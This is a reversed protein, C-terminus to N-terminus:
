KLFVKLKPEITELAQLVLRRHCKNPKKEWCLLTLDYKKAFDVLLNLFRQNKKLVQKTFIKEYVLWSIKKGQYDKLLKNQPALVPMWMDFDTYNGPRRMICIRVGDKKSKKVQISKTFIKM